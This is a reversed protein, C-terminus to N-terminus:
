LRLPPTELLCWIISMVERSALRALLASNESGTELVTELWLYGQQTQM